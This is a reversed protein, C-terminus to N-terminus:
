EQESHGDVYRCGGCGRCRRGDGEGEQGCAEAVQQTEAISEDESDPLRQGRRHLRRRTIERNQLRRYPTPAMVRRTRARQRRWLSNRTPRVNRTLTSM